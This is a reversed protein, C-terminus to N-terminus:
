LLFIQTSQDICGHGSRATATVLTAGGAFLHHQTNDLAKAQFIETLYRDIGKLFRRPDM